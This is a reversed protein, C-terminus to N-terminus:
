RGQQLTSLAGQSYHHGQTSMWVGTDHPNQPDVFKEVIWEQKKEDHFKERLEAVLKQSELDLIRDAFENETTPAIQYGNPTEHRNFYDQVGKKLVSIKDYTERVLGNQSLEQTFIAFLDGRVDEPLDESFNSALAYALLAKETQDLSAHSPFTKALQLADVKKGSYKQAIATFLEEVYLHSQKEPRNDIPMADFNKNDM